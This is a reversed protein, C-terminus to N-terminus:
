SEFLYNENINRYVFHLKTGFLFIYERACLGSIYLDGCLHLVHLYGAYNIIGGRRVHLLRLIFDTELQFLTKKLLVNKCSHKRDSM